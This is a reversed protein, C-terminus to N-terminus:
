TEVEKEYLSRGASSENSTEISGDGVDPHCLKGTDLAIKLGAFIDINYSVFSVLQLKGCHM